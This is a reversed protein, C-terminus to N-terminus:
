RPTRIDRRKSLRALYLEALGTWIAEQQFEAEVWRRGAAGMRAAEDPDALLRTVAAALAAPDRPPVLIGTKGDLVSDIAGTATTTVVPLGAASAELVVNPFGERHTPLVLVDMLQYAVAPDDLWGVRVVSDHSLARQLGASLGHDTDLDGVILLRTDPVGRRVEGFAEVLEAIGKDRALRGVFGVIPADAPVGLAARLRRAAEVREATPRFRTSAVGNSSGRGIVVVKNDSVLKLQKVRNALSPSVAVVTHASRCALWEAVWLIPRRLGHVTELRLTRLVYVRCPVRTMWAALGGILGAKPTGIFTVDQKELRLLRVFARLARLDARLDIERAMLLAHARVGEREALKDLHPGPAMVLTVEYGLSRFWALQGGLAAHTTTLPVTMAVLLRTGPPPSLSM